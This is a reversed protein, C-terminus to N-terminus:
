KAPSTFRNSMVGGNYYHYKDEKIGDFIVRDPMFDYLFEYLTFEIARALIAATRISLYANFLRTLIAPWLWEM